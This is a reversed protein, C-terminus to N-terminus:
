KRGKWVRDPRGIGIYIGGLRVWGCRKGDRRLGVLTVSGVLWSGFFANM